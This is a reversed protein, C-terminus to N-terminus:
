ALTKIRTMQFSIDKVIGQELGFSVYDGIKFPKSIYIMLSSFLDQLINQM